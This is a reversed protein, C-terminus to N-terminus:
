RRAHLQHPWDYQFNQLAATVLDGGEWDDAANFDTANLGNGSVGPNGSAFSSDTATWFAVGNKMARLTTGEVELRLVDGVSCTHSAVRLESYVSNTMKGLAYLSSDVYLWYASTGSGRVAVGIRSQSVSLKTIKIQAYQNDTFTGARSAVTTSNTNVKHRIENSTVFLHDSAGTIYTWISSGVGTIATGNSATFSETEVAM